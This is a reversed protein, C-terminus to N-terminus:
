FLYPQLSVLSLNSLSNLDVAQLTHPDSSFEEYIDIPARYPVFRPSVVPRRGSYNEPRPSSLVRPPSVLQSGFIEPRTSVRDTPSRGVSLSSGPSAGSWPLLFFRIPLWYVRQLRKLYLESM